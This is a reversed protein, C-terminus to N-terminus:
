RTVRYNIDSRRNQAWAGELHGTARPKEEGFSVTEIQRENAGLLILLRKIADARQQGLALNYERSGREDCNGEVVVRAGPNGKLHQAHAELLPRYEPKIASDDFDYYVSRKSLIDRPDNLSDRGGAAPAPQVGAPRLPASLNIPPPAPRGPVLVPAM